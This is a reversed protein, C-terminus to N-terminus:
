QQSMNTPDLTTWHDNAIMPHFGQAHIETAQENRQRLIVSVVVFKM